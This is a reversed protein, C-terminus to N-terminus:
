ANRARQPSGPHHAPITAAALADPQPPLRRNLAAPLTAPTRTSHRRTTLGDAPRSRPPNISGDPSIRGASPTPSSSPPRAATAEPPTNPATPSGLAPRPAGRRRHGDRPGQAKRPDHDRRARTRRHHTIAPAALRPPRPLAQTLPASRQADQGRSTQGRPLRRDQPLLPSHQRRPPSARLQAPPQRRPRPPPPPHQWLLRPDARRRQHARAKFRHRLPGRRRDRRDAQRRDAPRM